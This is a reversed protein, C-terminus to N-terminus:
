SSEIRGFRAVRIRAPGQMILSETNTNRAVKV